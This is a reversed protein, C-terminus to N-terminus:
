LHGSMRLLNLKGREILHRVGAIISIDRLPLPRFDTPWSKLLLM